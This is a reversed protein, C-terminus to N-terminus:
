IVMEAPVGCSRLLCVTVASRQLCRAQKPYWTTARDVAARVRQIASGFDLQDIRGRPWTKVLRYLAAFGILKLMMNIAFLGLFATLNYLRLRLLVRVVKRAMPAFLSNWGRDLDRSRDTADAQVIGKAQLAALLRAVNEETERSQSDDFERAAEAVLADFTLGSENGALKTLILSGLGIVSYMKDGEVHLVATGDKDTCSLIGPGLVFRKSRLSSSDAVISETSM